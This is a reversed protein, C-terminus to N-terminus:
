CVKRKHVQEFAGITINPNKQILKELKKSRNLERRIDRHANGKKKSNRLDDYSLVKSKISKRAKCVLTPCQHSNIKYRGM